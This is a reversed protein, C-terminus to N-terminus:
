HNNAQPSFLPLSQIRADIEAIAAQYPPSDFDRYIREFDAQQLVQPFDDLRPFFDRANRTEALQQQVHRATLPDLAQQALLTGVRGAALDAFSFGTGGPATDTFEKIEGLANALGSNGTIQLAASTALHQVLDHRGQIRVARANPPPGALAATRVAAALHPMPLDGFYLAFALLAARNEMVATADGKTGSRAQALSFIERLMDTVPYRRDEFAIGLAHLRTYYLRVKEPPAAWDPTNRTLATFLQNALDANARYQVGMDNETLRLTLIAASIEDSKATEFLFLPLLRAVLQGMMDPLQQEGAKVYALRLGKDSPPFGFSFNAFEAIPNPPLRHSIRVELMTESLSAMGRTDRMSRSIVRGLSDLEPKSIVLSAPEEGSKLNARYQALVARAHHADQWQVPGPPPVTAHRDLAHWAGWGAVAMVGTVLGAIVTLSSRVIAPRWKRKSHM